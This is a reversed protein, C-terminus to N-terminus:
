NSTREGFYLGPEGTDPLLLAYDKKLNFKLESADGGGLCQRHSVM